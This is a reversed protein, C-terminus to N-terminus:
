YDNFIRYLRVKVSVQHLTRKQLGKKCPGKERKQEETFAFFPCERIESPFINNVLM